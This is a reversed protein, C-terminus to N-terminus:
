GGVTLCNSGQRLLISGDTRGSSGVAWAQEDSGSCPRLGVAAGPEPALSALCFTPDHTYAITGNANITFWQNVAPDSPYGGGCIDGPVHCSWVDLEGLGTDCAYLDLCMSPFTALRLTGNNNNNASWLFAQADEEAACLRLLLPSHNAPNFPPADWTLNFQAVWLTDFSPEQRSFFVLLAADGWEDSGTPALPVLGLPARAGGPLAVPQGPAWVEGDLSWTFGFGDKEGMISDYVAILFPPSTANSQVQLVIPNETRQGNIQLPTAAHTWPGRISGSASRSLGVSWYSGGDSSGYLALLPGDAAGTPPPFAFFSDDGQNGEWLSARSRELLNGVSLYPGGIGEQGVVTSRMLNIWGDWNGPCNYGVWTVYWVGEEESYFAVPSWMAATHSRTDSCNRTSVMESGDLVLTGVRTWGSAGASDKTVWHALRMGVWKPALYEESVLMHLAGGIRRVSGDEFGYTNGVSGPSSSNVICRLTDPILELGLGYAIPPFLLLLEAALQLLM